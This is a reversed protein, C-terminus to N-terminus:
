PHGTAQRGEGAGSRQAELGLADLDRRAQDPNYHPLIRQQRPLGGPRRRFRPQEAADSPRDPWAPRRQRHDPPRHRQLDGAAAERDDLISGPAGNFTFHYWIPAPASRIAIGPTRQATVMDDLSGVDAADIANNQLAPIVASPDLVLFTISDLRPKRGWWRPNRSLVIRQAGRDIQPCSSRDPRRAPRRSSAQTSSM